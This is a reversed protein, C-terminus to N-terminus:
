CVVFFLSELKATSTFTSWNSRLNMLFCRKSFESNWSSLESLEHIKYQSKKLWQLFTILANIVPLDSEWVANINLLMAELIYHKHNLHLFTWSCSITIIQRGTLSWLNLTYKIEDQYHDKDPTNCSLPSTVHRWIHLLDEILLPFSPIFTILSCAPPKQHSLAGMCSAKAGSFFILLERKDLVIHNNSSIFTVFFM